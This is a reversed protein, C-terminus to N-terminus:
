EDFETFLWDLIIDVAQEEVKEPLYMFPRAPMAGWEGPSEDRGTFDILQAHPAKTFVEASFPYVAYRISDILGTSRGGDRKTPLLPQHEGWREITDPDLADWEGDGKSRVNRMVASFGLKAVDTLPVSFDDFKRDLGKLLTIFETPAVFRVRAM